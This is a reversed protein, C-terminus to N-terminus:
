KDEIELFDRYAPHFEFREERKSRRAANRALIKAKRLDDARDPYAFSGERVEIGLFSLMLLAELCESATDGDTLGPITQIMDVIEAKSMISPSGAFEYVVEELYGMTSGYEVLLADLAFKSYNKKAAAIDSQEVTSHRANAANIVAAKCFFVLDRPRHLITSLIYELTPKGDVSPCFYQEWLEDPSTGKPRMCLYREDMVRKLLDPQNWDIRKTNIKDPERAERIVEDYIDSRLFASVTVNVSRLKNNERQFEEAIRSVTSLLGVLLVAQSKLQASKTWASDLNDVLLAVRHRDRLAEGLLKRLNGVINGHLAQAIRERQKEITGAPGKMDRRVSEIARELRVSFEEAIDNQTLYDRLRAM